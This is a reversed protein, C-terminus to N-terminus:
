LYNSYKINGNINIECEAITIHFEWIQLGM